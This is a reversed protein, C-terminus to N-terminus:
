FNKDIKISPIPLNIIYINKNITGFSYGEETVSEYIYEALIIINTSKVFRRLKLWLIIWFGYSNIKQKEKEFSALKQELAKRKREEKDAKLKFVDLEKSM